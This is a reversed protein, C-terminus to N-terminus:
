RKPPYMEAMQLYSARGKETDPLDGRVGLTRISVANSKPRGSFQHKPPMFIERGPKSGSAVRGMLPDLKFGIKELRGMFGRLFADSNM